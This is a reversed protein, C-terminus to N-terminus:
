KLLEIEIKKSAKQDILDKIENLKNNIEENDKFLDKEIAIDVLESKLDKIKNDITLIEMGLKGQQALDKGKEIAKEGAAKAKDFAKNASGKLEDLFGM